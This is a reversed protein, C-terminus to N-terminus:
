QSFALICSFSLLVAKGTRTIGITYPSWDM